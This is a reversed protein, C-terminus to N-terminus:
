ADKPMAGKRGAPGLGTFLAAFGRPLPAGIPRRPGLSRWRDQRPGEGLRDSQVERLLGANRERVLSVDLGTFVKTEKAEPFEDSQLRGGRFVTSWACFVWLVWV